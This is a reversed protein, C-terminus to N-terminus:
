KWQIESGIIEHDRVVKSGGVLQTLINTGAGTIKYQTDQGKVTTLAQIEKCQVTVEKKIKYISLQATAQFCNKGLTMTKETTNIQGTCKQSIELTGKGILKNNFTGKQVTAYTITFKGNEDVTFSEMDRPFLTAILALDPVTDMMHHVFQETPSCNVEM